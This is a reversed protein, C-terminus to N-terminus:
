FLIMYFRSVRSLLKSLGSCGQSPLKVWPARGFFFSVLHYLCTLPNSGRSCDHHRQFSESPDKCVVLCNDDRHPASTWTFIRLTEPSRYDVCWAGNRGKLPTGVLIHDRASSYCAWQVVDGYIHNPNPFDNDGFSVVKAQCPGVNQLIAGVSEVKPCLM